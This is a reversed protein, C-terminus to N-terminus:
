VPEAVDVVRLQPVERGNFRNMSITGAFHLTEGNANLLTQGMPGDAARFAIADIARTANGELSMKLHGNGVIKAFRVIHNPFAFLPQDHGAGYPGVTDLQTVLEASVAGSSLAGDLKLVADATLQTVAEASKGEFHSRLAG